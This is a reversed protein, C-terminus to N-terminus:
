ERPWSGPDGLHKVGVDASEAEDLVNFRFTEGTKSNVPVLHCLFFRPHTRAMEYRYLHEIAERDVELTAHV